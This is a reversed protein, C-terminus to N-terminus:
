CTRSLSLNPCRWTVVRLRVGVRYITAFAAVDACYVAARDRLFTLGHKRGPLHAAPARAGDEATQQELVM